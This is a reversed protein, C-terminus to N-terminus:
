SILLLEATRRITRNVSQDLDVQGKLLVPLASLNPAALEAGVRSGTSPM